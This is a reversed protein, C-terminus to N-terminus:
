IKEVDETSKLMSKGFMESFMKYSDEFKNLNYSEDIYKPEFFKDTLFKNMLTNWFVIGEHGSLVKVVRHEGMLGGDSKDCIESMNVKNCMLSKHKLESDSYIQKNFITCVETDSYGKTELFKYANILSMDSSQLELFVVDDLKIIKNFEDLSVLNVSNLDSENFKVINLCIIVQNKPLYYVPSYPKRELNKLLESTDDNNYTYCMYSKYGDVSMPYLAECMIISEPLAVRDYFPSSCYITTHEINFNLSM